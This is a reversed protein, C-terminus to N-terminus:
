SASTATFTWTLTASTGQLTNSAGAKIRVEICYRHEGNFELASPIAGTALVGASTWTGADSPDTVYTGSTMAAADCATGVGTARAIRYELGVALAGTADTDNLLVTGAVTTADTTRINFPAFRSVGPSMGTGATLTAVLPDGINHNWNSRDVSSETNFVSATFSGAANEQDTWAALTVAAGVGLVLGGALIARLRRSLTGARPM